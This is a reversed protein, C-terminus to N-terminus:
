QNLYPPINKRNFARVTAALSLLRVQQRAVGSLLPIVNYERTLRATGEDAILDM